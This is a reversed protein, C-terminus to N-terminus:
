TVRIVFYTLFFGITVVILSLITIWTTGWSKGRHDRLRVREKSLVDHNRDLKEDMGELVGKDKELAESFHMANRKLQEAMKALQEALDDQVATSTELFAPTSQIKPVHPVKDFDVALRNDAPASEYQDSELLLNTPDPPDHEEEVLSKEDILEPESSPPVVHVSKTM